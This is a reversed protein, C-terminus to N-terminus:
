GKAYRGVKFHRLAVERADELTNLVRREEDIKSDITSMAGAHRWVKKNSQWEVLVQNEWFGKPAVRVERVIGIRQPDGMYYVLKGVVDFGRYILYNVSEGTHSLPRPM